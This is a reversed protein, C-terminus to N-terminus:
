TFNIVVHPVFHKPIIKMGLKECSRRISLDDYHSTVLFARNSIGLTNIVDLGTIGQGIFEYDIFYVTAFERQQQWKILDDAKYFNFINENPNLLKIGLHDQWVHHISADDDLIVIHSNYGIKLDNVFWAPSPEKKLKISVTTGKGEKSDISFDGNWSHIKEIADKLGLGRGSEKGYSVGGEGVQRMLDAPIGCGNDIIRIEVMDNDLNKLCITISGKNKIKQFADVSNDILNSIVRKFGSGALNVFIGLAEPKVEWCWSINNKNHQLRKETWISALLDAVIEPESNEIIPEKRDKYNYQVLLNNSIDTIRSAAKRVLIREKESLTQCNHVIMDLAALPSRIDHAVQTALEGLAIQKLKKENSTLLDILKNKIENIEYTYKVACEYTIQENLSENNKLLHLLNNIPQVFLKNPISRGLPYLIVLVILSFAILLIVKVLLPSLLSKDDLFSGTIVFYGFHNNYITHLPYYYVWYFPFRWKISKLIQQDDNSIWVLKIPTHQNNFNHIALNIADKNPVLIQSIIFDELPRCDNDLSEKFSSLSNRSEFFTQAVIGSLILLICILIRSSIKWRVQSALTENNKIFKLM